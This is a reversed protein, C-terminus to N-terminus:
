KAKPHRDVVLAFADCVIGQRVSIGIIPDGNGTLTRSEDQGKVGIWPSTYSDKSDLRGDNMVRMFVLQMANVYSGAQVNVAGVAYGARALAGGPKKLEQGPSFIPTIDKLCQENFWEGFNCEIGYLLSKDDITRKPGGGTSGGAFATDEGINPLERLRAANARV